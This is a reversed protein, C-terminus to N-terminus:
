HNGINDGGSNLCNIKFGHDHKSNYIVGRIYGRVGPQNIFDLRDQMAPERSTILGSGHCKYYINPTTPTLHPFVPQGYGDQNTWFILLRFRSVGHGRDNFAHYTFKYSGDKQIILKNFYVPNDSRRALFNLTGYKYDSAPVVFHLEDDTSKAEDLFIETPAGVNEIEFNEPDVVDDYQFVNPM